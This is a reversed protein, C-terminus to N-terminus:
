IEVFLIMLLQQQLVQHVQMFVDLQDYCGGLGDDETNFSTFTIKIKDTPSVPCFTITSSESASYNSSSGGSDVFTGACKTVTANVGNTM